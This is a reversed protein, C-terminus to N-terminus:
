SLSGPWHHQFYPPQPFGQCHLKLLLCIKGSLQSTIQRLLLKCQPFLTAKNFALLKLENLLARVQMSIYPQSPSCSTCSDVTHVQVHAPEPCSLCPQASVLKLFKKKPHVSSSKLIQNRLDFKLSFAVELHQYSAVQTKCM